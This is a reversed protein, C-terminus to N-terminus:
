NKEALEKLSKLAKPWINKFMEAFEENIDMDVIVETKGDNEKLTYSEIAGAWDKVKESTTDEVGNRVEGLHKFSMFKNPINEDVRSVMGNGKGDTFLVKSGKKWNDTEFTSGSGEHTTGELFPATWASYTTKDWLTQWVKEKPADITIRFEQKEM